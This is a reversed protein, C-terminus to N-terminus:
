QYYKKLKQTLSSLKKNVRARYARFKKLQHASFYTKKDLVDNLQQKIDQLKSIEKELTEARYM